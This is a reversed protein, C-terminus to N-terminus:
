RQDFEARCAKSITDRKSIKQKAHTHGKELLRKFKKNENAYSGAPRSDSSIGKKKM